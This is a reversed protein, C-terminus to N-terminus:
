RCSRLYPPFCASGRTEPCASKVYYEWAAELDGQTLPPHYRTRLEEDSLGLKRAVILMWVAIRTTRICADGGIVGPTKEIWSARSSDKM